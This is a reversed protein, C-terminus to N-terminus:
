WHGRYFVYLAARGAASLDGPRFRGGASDPLEFDPMAEGAKVRLAGPTVSYVLMWSLFIGTLLILAGLGAWGWAGPSVAAGFAASALGAAMLVYTAAPHLRYVGRRLEYFYWFAGAFWVILGTVVM